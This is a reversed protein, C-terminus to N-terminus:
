DHIFIDANVNGFGKKFTISNKNTAGAQAILLNGIEAATLKTMLQDPRLVAIHGDNSIVGPKGAHLHTLLEDLDSQSSVDIRRWGDQEKLLWQHLSQPNATMPDKNKNEGNGVGLEGKTPLPAKMARMVDAAFINCRTDGTGPKCGNEPYPRYRCAYDSEVKFQHIAALYYIINRDEPSNQYLATVQKWENSMNKDTQAPCLSPSTSCAYLLPNSSKIESEIDTKIGELIQGAEDKIEQGIQDIAKDAQKQVEDAIEQQTEPPLFQDALEQCGSLSILLLILISGKIMSIRLKM